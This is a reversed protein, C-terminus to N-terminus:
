TSLESCRSKTTPGFVGNPISIGEEIQLAYLLAKNTSRAYIGDCPVLGIDSAFYQNSSYDRNLNQQIIRINPDSNYEGYNLLVFADMSLLSKMLLSTVVGIPNSLGADSQLQIVAKKTGDGFTGTFGGPNYGKCFLAGQLM